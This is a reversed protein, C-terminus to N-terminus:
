LEKMNLDMEREMADMMTGRDCVDSWRGGSEEFSSKVL